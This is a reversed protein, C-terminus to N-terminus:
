PVCVSIRRAVLSTRRTKIWNILIINFNRERPIRSIRTCWVIDFIHQRWLVITQDSIANNFHWVIIRFQRRCMCIIFRCCHWLLELINHDIIHIPIQLRHWRRCGDCCTRDCWNAAAAAIACRWRRRYGHASWPWRNRYCWFYDFRFRTFIGIGHRYRACFLGYTNQMHSNECKDIKHLFSLTRIIKMKRRMAENWILIAALLAILTKLFRSSRRRAVCLSTSLLYNDRSINVNSELNVSGMGRVWGGWLCFSSSSILYIVPDHFQAANYRRVTWIDDDTIAPTHANGINLALGFAANQGFCAFVYLHQLRCFRLHRAFPLASIAVILWDTLSM